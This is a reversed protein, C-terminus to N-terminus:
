EVRVNFLLCCAGVGVHSVKELLCCKLEDTPKIQIEVGDEFTVIVRAFPNDENEVGIGGNEDAAVVNNSKRPSKKRPSSSFRIKRKPM